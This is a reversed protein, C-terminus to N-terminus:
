LADRVYSSKGDIDKYEKLDVELTQIESLLRAKEKVLKSELKEVKLLQSQLVRHDNDLNIVTGENNM